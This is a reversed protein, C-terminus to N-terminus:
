EPIEAAKRKAVVEPTLLDWRKLMKEEGFHNKESGQGKKSPSKKKRDNATAAKAATQARSVVWLGLNGKEREQNGGIKTSPLNEGGMNVM